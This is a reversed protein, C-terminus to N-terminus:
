NILYIVEYSAPFPQLSEPQVTAIAIMCHCLQFSGCTLQSFNYSCGLVKFSAQTRSTSAFPTQWPIWFTLTSGAVLLATAVQASYVYFATFPSDLMGEVFKGVTKVQVCHWSLKLGVINGPERKKKPLSLRPVLSGRMSFSALEGQRHIGTPVGVKPVSKYLGMCLYSCNSFLIGHCFCCFAESSM